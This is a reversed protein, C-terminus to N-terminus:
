QKQTTKQKNWRKSEELMKEAKASLGSKTTHKFTCQTVWCTEDYKCPKTSTKIAYIEKLLDKLSKEFARMTADYGMDDMWVKSTIFLDERAVGSLKLAQGVEQENGYISAADVLRYGLSLATEVSQGVENQQGPAYVGLGLQPM